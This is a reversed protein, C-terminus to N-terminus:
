GAPTFYFPQDPLNLRGKRCPEFAPDLFSILFEDLAGKMRRAEMDATIAEIDM